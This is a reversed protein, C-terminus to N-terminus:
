SVRGGSRGPRLSEVLRDSPEGGRLSAAPTAVVAVASLRTGTVASLRTRHHSRRPQLRARPAVVAPRQHGPLRSEIIAVEERLYEGLREPDPIAAPDVDIGVAYVDGYSVFAMSLPIGFLVPAFPYVAEIKAGALFRYVPPGPVNSCILHMRGTVLNAIARFAAAPMVTVAQLLAGYAVAQRSGKAATTQSRIRELRRLPDREGVPLRVHFAGVHNGVTRPDRERRLDKPVVSSVEALRIHHLKHYRGIAGAVATLVLDNLSVGLASKIRQMHTLSFTVTDLRRGIGTCRAALPDTGPLANFDAIMARVKGVTRQLDQATAVPHLVARGVAGAASWLVGPVPPSPSEFRHPRRRSRPIRIPDDRGAQTMADFLTMAGAGDMLSHHLKLFLAARGGEIGDIVYGEWLPRLHDLPTAFLAGILELLQHQTAGHPLVVHRLHYDLDFDPDAAWHPLGVPLPPDVVRQRLRPLEAILRQISRRMRQGDPARDLMFLGAVLPRVQPAAAEAYWFFADTPQMPTDPHMPARSRRPSTM